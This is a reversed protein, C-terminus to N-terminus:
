TVTKTRAYACDRVTSVNTIMAIHHRHIEVTRECRQWYDLSNLRQRHYNHHHYHYTTSTAATTTAAAAAVVVVIILSLLFRRAAAKKM